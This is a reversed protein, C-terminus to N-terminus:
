RSSHENSLPIVHENRGSTAARRTDSNDIDVDSINLLEDSVDRDSARSNGAVGSANAGSGNDVNAAGEGDDGSLNIMGVDSDPDFSSDADAASDGGDITTSGSAHSLSLPLASESGTTVPGPAGENAYLSEQNQEVPGRM